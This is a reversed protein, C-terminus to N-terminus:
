PGFHGCDEARRNTPTRAMGVAATTGPSLLPDSSRFACFAQQLSFSTNPITMMGTFPSLGAYFIPKNSGDSPPPSIDDFIVLNSPNTVLTPVVSNPIVTSGNL